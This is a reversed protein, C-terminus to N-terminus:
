EPTNPDGDSGGSSDGSTPRDLSVGSTLNTSSCNCQYHSGPPPPCVCSTTAAQTATASVASGPNDNFTRLETSGTKKPAAMSLVGFCLVAILSIAFRM